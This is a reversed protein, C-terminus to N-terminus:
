KWFLSIIFVPFTMFNDLFGLPNEEMDMFWFCGFSNVRKKTYTDKQSTLGNQTCIGKVKSSIIISNVWYKKKWIWVTKNWSRLNFDTDPFIFCHTKQNNLVWNEASHFLYKCIHYKIYKSKQTIYRM